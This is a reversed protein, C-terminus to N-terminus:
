SVLRLWRMESLGLGSVWQLWSFSPLVSLLLCLSAAGTELEADELCLQARAGSWVSPNEWHLIFSGVVEM